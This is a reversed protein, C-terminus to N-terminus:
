IHWRASQNPLGCIHYNDSFSVIEPEPAFELPGYLSVICLDFDM